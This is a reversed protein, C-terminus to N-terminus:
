IGYDIYMQSIFKQITDIEKVHLGIQKRLIDTEKNKEIVMNFGELDLRDKKKKMEKQQEKELKLDLHKVAEVKTKILRQEDNKQIINLENRFNAAEEVRENIAVLREQNSLLKIKNNQKLKINEIKALEKQRILENLQYLANKQLEIQHNKKDEYNKFINDWDNDFVNQM